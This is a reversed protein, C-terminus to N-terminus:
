WVHGAGGEIDDESERAEGELDQGALLSNPVPGATAIGMKERKEEEVELRAKRILSKIYGKHRHESKFSEEGLQATCVAYANAKSDKTQVDRICDDWKTTHISPGPKEVSLESKARPDEVEGNTNTMDKKFKYNSAAADVLWAATARGCGYSNSIENIIADRYMGVKLMQIIEAMASADDEATMQAKMSASKPQNSQERYSRIEGEEDLKKDVPKSIEEITDLQDDMEHVEDKVNDLEEQINIDHSKELKWLERFTKQKM